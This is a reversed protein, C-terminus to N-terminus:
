RSEFTWEREANVIPGTSKPWSLGKLVDDICQKLKSASASEPTLSLTTGMLQGASNLTLQAKVVQKFPGSPASELVCGGVKEEAGDLAKKVAVETALNAATKPPPPAPKKKKKPPGALAVSALLLSLLVFSRPLSPV